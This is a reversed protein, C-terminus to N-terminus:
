NNFELRNNFYLVCFLVDNHGTLLKKENKRLKKINYVLPQSSKDTKM